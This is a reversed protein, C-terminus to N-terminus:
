ARVTQINQNARRLGNSIHDLYMQHYIKQRSNYSDGKGTLVFDAGVSKDVTQTYQNSLMGFAESAAEDVIAKHDSTRATLEADEAPLVHTTTHHILVIFPASTGVVFGSIFPAGINFEPPQYVIRILRSDADDYLQWQEPTLFTAANSTQVPYEIKLRDVYGEDFGTIDATDIVGDDDSTLEQVARRPWKQSYTQLARRLCVNFDDPDSLVAADDRIIAKLDARAESLKM